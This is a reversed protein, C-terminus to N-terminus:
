LVAENDIPLNGLRMLYQLLLVRLTFLNYDSKM